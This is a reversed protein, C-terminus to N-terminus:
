LFDILEGADKVIIDPNIKSFEVDERKTEGSLVLVSIMKSDNALVIDTYLRDGIVVCDEFKFDNKTLIGSIINKSPKGFIKDPNRGTTMEIVKIFTGIDPIPGNSAPCVIDMHTAFYPVGTRILHVAEKLKDYNIETDYTLILADPNKTTILFGKEYFHKTVEANAILCIKDFKNEKLYDILSDTSVIIQCEKIDIGMNKFTDFHKNKTKSSNNTLCYFHKSKQKLKGLFKNTGNLLNNGIVLTGDRDLFFMKRNKLENLHENFLMEAQHLDDYNDVEYWRYNKIDYPKANITSNNLLRQLLVETWMNLNKEDEIIKILHKRLIENDSKVFKYIDISCGFANKQSIKKSIDNIYNKENLSIKMSEEIYEGVDTAIVSGQLEIMGKIIEEDFVVDANMIITEDDLYKRSLYLSYMNNTTSYDKNEVFKFNIDPYSIECYKILDSSLYGVCIIIDKIDNELLADIQYNIIPKGAVKVLTKPKRNTIPRLRTGTGAALIIAKM